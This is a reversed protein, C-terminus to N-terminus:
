EDIKTVNSDGGNIKIRALNWLESTLFAFVSAVLVTPENGGTKVFVWLVAVTFMMALFIVVAVIKKSYNM